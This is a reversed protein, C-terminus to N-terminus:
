IPLVVRLTFIGNEAKFEYLGRHAQAIAQISRCGHGHNPRSAEPLGERFPIHGSYPNKIEILLKGARVGCYFEVWRRNEKLKEVANLANELGNSLLACLETDSIAPLNPLDAELTLRVGM